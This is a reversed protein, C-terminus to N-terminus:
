QSKLRAHLKKSLKEMEDAKKLTDISTTSAGGNELEQKVENALVALRTADKLNQEHDLRARVAPDKAPPSGVEPTRTQPPSPNPAAGGRSQDSSASVVVLLVTVLSFKSLYIM